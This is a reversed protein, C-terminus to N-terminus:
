ALFTKYFLEQSLLRRKFFALFHRIIVSVPPTHLHDLSRNALGYRRLDNTPEFGVEEALKQPSNASHNIAGTKFVPRRFGDSTRIRWEGSPLKLLHPLILVVSRHQALLRFRLDTALGLRAVALRSDLGFGGSEALNTIKM